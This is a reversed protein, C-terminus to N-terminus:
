HFDEMNAPQLMNQLDQIIESASEKVLVEKGSLMTIKTNLQKQEIAEISSVNVFVPLDLDFSTLEILM